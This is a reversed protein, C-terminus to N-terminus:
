LEDNNIYDCTMKHPIFGDVEFGKQSKRNVHRKEGLIRMIKHKWCARQFKVKLSGYIKWNDNEFFLTAMHHHKGFQKSNINCRLDNSHKLDSKLLYKSIM